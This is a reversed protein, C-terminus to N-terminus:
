LFFAATNCENGIPHVFVLVKANVICGVIYATVVVGDIWLSVWIDHDERSIKLIDLVSMRVPVGTDQPNVVPVEGHIALFRLSEVKEM